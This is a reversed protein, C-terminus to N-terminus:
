TCLSQVYVIPLFLVKQLRSDSRKRAGEGNAAVRSMKEEEDRSGQVFHCRFIAIDRIIM